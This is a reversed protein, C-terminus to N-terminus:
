NSSKLRYKWIDKRSVVPTSLADEISWKCKNIRKHLVTYSIGLDISWESLTKIEGKFEIMLNNRVNNAQQRMTAWRCNDKCYDGDNDIRDVTTQRSGFENLHNLYSEYMDDRFNIFNHWSDCVKIGRGGYNIFGRCKNNYCRQKISKWIWYFKDGTMGHTIKLKNNWNMIIM